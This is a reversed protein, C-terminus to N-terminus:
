ESSRGQLHHSDILYEGNTVAGGELGARRGFGTDVGDALARVEDM